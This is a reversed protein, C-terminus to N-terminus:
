KPQSFISLQFSNWLSIIWPLVLKQLYLLKSCKLKILEYDFKIYKKPLSIENLWHNAGEYLWNEGYKSGSNYWIRKQNGKRLTIYM